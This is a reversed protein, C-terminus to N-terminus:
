LEAYTNTHLENLIMKDQPRLFYRAFKPSGPYRKIWQDTETQMAQICEFYLDLSAPAQEQLELLKYIGASSEKTRISEKSSLDYIGEGAHSDIYTFPAAKNQLYKLLFILISHKMVEAFNGAHYSHQYNM